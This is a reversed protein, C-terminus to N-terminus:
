NHLNDQNSVSFLLAAVPCKPDSSPAGKKNPLFYFDLTKEICFRGAAGCPSIMSGRCLVASM